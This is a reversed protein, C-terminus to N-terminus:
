PNLCEFPVACHQAVPRQLAERGFRPLLQPTERTLPRPARPPGKRQGCAIILARRLRLGLIPDRDEGRVARLASM